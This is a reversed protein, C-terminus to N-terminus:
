FRVSRVLYISILVGIFPIIFGFMILFGLVIKDSKLIFDISPYMQQFAIFASFFLIFYFTGSIVYRIVEQSRAFLLILPCTIINLIVVPHNYFEITGSIFHQYAFYLQVVAFAIAWGYLAISLKKAIEPATYKIEVM